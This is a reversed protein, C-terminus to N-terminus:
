CVCVCVCMYLGEYIHSNVHICIYIYMCINLQTTETDQLGLWFHEYMIYEDRM